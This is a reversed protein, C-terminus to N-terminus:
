KVNIGRFVPMIAPDNNCTTVSQLMKRFTRIIIKMDLILSMHDVYWNDLLFRESWTILNGGEVQAHGTIGPKITFRKKQSTDYLEDYTLPLPRPGVFSMDGKLINYLQPLEDLGTNRLIRGTKTVDEAKFSLGEGSKIKLTRFKYLIFPKGNIGQRQQTFFVPRGQGVWLIVYLTSLFFLAIPALCIIIILDTVRKIHRGYYNM